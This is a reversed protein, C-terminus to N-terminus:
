NPIDESRLIEDGLEVVKDVLIDFDAYQSRHNTISARLSFNGNLTTYSPLAVGSEHLRILLEKNLKSLTADDVGEAIYRFCVINLPVPATRELQPHEDVLNELYRAQAVNQEILRGLKDIGHAKFSMWVKLARFGRTLQVGLEGYWASKGSALGRPMHTLYDPTSAFTAALEDLDRVLVGAIEFPLYGWKHLDFGLSDARELGDVIPKLEESIAVLAGFAGDVHFWLAERECIDAIARLDDFAATNTTAANGIICVPKLGNAKDEAIAVELAKIDMSYQADVPILRLAQTGLGLLEVAKPNSSHTEESAYMVM